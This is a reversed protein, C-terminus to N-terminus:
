TVGLGWLLVGIVALSWLLTAVKNRACAEKV